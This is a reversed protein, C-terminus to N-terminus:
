ALPATVLRLLEPLRARDFLPIAPRQGAHLVADPALHTLRRRVTHTARGAARAVESAPILVLDPTPHRMVWADSHANGDGRM